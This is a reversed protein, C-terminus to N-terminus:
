EDNDGYTWEVFANKKLYKKENSFLEGNIPM